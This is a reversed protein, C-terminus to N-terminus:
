VETLPLGKLTDRLGQYYSDCKHDAFFTGSLVIRSFYDHPYGKWLTCGERGETVKQCQEHFVPQGRIHFLSGPVFLEEVPRSLKKSDQDPSSRLRSAYAAYRRAVDQVSSLAQVTSAVLDLIRKREDGEKRLFNTWDLALIENRLRDLSAASIRSIVDDQLVITRIFDASQVALTKSVCPPCAFAVASVISPCFGLEEESKQRLMMALLSATAGGLSHGVLRLRFGIHKQLHSRLTGLENMIFWEAAQATGYHVSGGDFTVEEESHSVLDTILDHVSSTGRIGLILLKQRTDVAIYYAPRMVSSKDMFKVVNSERLMSVQALAAPNKKYAGKALEVHYILDEVVNASLVQEGIITDVTMESAHSLSLLYLGFSLDGLSWQQMGTTASRHLNLAIDVLSRATAAKGVKQTDGPPLARKYMSVASELVNSLWPLQSNWRGTKEEEEDGDSSKDKCSVKPLQKKNAVEKDELDTEDSSAGHFSRIFSLIRVRRVILCFGSVHLFRTTYQPTSM